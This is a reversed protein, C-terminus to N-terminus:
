EHFLNVNRVEGGLRCTVFHCLLQFRFAAQGATESRLANLGRRRVDLSREFCWRKLSVDGGQQLVVVSGGVEAV